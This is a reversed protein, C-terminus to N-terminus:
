EALKEIKNSVERVLRALFVNLPEILKKKLAPDQNFM